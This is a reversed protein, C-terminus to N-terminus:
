YAAKKTKILQRECDNPSMYGLYSHLRFSGHFMSIYELTDTVTVSSRLPQAVKKRYIYRPSTM